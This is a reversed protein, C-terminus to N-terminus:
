SRPTPRFLGVLERAAIWVNLLGLVCLAGRFVPEDWLYELRPTLTQLYNFSWTDLWPAVMLTLGASLAVLAYCATLIPHRLRAPEPESPPVPVPAAGLVHEPDLSM